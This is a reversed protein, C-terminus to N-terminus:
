GMWCIPIDACHPEWYYYNKIPRLFDDVASINIEVQDALAKMEEMTGVMDHTLQTMQDMLGIVTQM